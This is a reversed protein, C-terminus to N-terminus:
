TLMNETTAQLYPNKKKSIIKTFNDVVLNRTSMLWYTSKHTRYKSANTEVALGIGDLHMDPLTEDPFNSNKNM